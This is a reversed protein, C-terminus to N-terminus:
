NAFFENLADEATGRESLIRKFQDVISSLAPRDEESVQLVAVATLVTGFLNFRDVRAFVARTRSVHPGFLPLALLSGTVFYSSSFVDAFERDSLNLGGLEDLFVHIRHALVDFSDARLTSEMDICRLKTELNNGLLPISAVLRSIDQEDIAESITITPFDCNLPSFSILFDFRDKLQPAGPRPREVDYETIVDVIHIKSALKEIRYKGYATQEIGCNVVLGVRFVRQTHVQDLYELLSMVIRTTDASFLEAARLEPVGRLADFLLLFSDMNDHKVVHELPGPISLNCDRRIMASELLASLRRMLEGDPAKGFRKELARGVHDALAASHESPERAGLGGSSWQWTGCSFFNSALTIERDDIPMGLHREFRSKLKKFLAPHAPTTGSGEDLVHGLRLRACMVKLYFSTQQRSNKALLMGLEREAEDAIRDLFLTDERAFMPDIYNKVMRADLKFFSYIIFFRLAVESGEIALSGQRKMSLEFPKMLLAWWKMDHQLQQKNTFLARALSDVTYSRPSCTVLLVGHLFRELRPRSEISTDAVLAEIRGKERHVLVMRIGNGRKSGVRSAFGGRELHENVAQVDTRVTKESCGLMRAFEAVPTFHEIDLLSRLLTSQRVNM